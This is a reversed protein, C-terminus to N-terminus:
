RPTCSAPAAPFADEGRKEGIWRYVSEITDVQCSMPVDQAGFARRLASFREQILTSERFIKAEWTNIEIDHSIRALKAVVPDASPFAVLLTEFTSLRHTRRYRATPTDFATRGSIPEGRPTVIIKAGSIWKQIYWATMAKDPEAGAWTAFVEAGRVTASCALVIPIM